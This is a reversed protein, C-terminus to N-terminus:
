SSSLQLPLIIKNWIQHLFTTTCKTNSMSCFYGMWALWPFQSYFSWLPKTITTKQIGGPLGYHSIQWLGRTETAMRRFQAQIVALTSDSRSRVANNITIQTSGPGASAWLVHASWLCVAWCWCMGWLSYQGHPWPPPVASAQRVRSATRLTLLRYVLGHPWDGLTREALTHACPSLM